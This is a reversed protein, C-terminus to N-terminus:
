KQFVSILTRGFLISAKFTLLDFSDQLFLKTLLIAFPLMPSLFLASYRFKDTTIRKVRFGSRQASNILFQVPILSIHRKTADERLRKNSYLSPYGCILYRLRSALNLINPVSVVLIGGPKLVRHSEQLFGEWHILHEIVEVVIVSDFSSDSFPLSSNLDCRIIPLKELKFREPFIDAAFVDYGAESLKKTLAGEGCGADLIVSGKPLHEKILNFVVNHTKKLAQPKPTSESENM